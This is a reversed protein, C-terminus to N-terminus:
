SYCCCCCNSSQNSQNRQHSRSCRSSRHPHVSRKTKNNRMTEEPFKKNNRAIFQQKEEINPRGINDDDSYREREKEYLRENRRAAALDIFIPPHSYDTNVQEREGEHLHHNNPTAVLHIIFPRTNYSVRPQTTYYKRQQEM